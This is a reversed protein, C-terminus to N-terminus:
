KSPYLVFLAIFPSAYLLALLLLASGKIVWMLVSPNVDFSPILNVRPLVFICLFLMCLTGLSIYM